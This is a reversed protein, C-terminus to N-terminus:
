REELHATVLDSLATFCAHLGDNVARRGQEGRGEALNAEWADLALGTKLIARVGADWLEQKM